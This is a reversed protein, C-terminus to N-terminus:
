TLTNKLMLFSESKLLKEILLTNTSLSAIDITVMSQSDDGKLALGGKFKQFDGKVVGISSEVCFGMKSSSPKIRYLNGDIASKLMTEILTHDVDADEFPACLDDDVAAYPQLPFLLSVILTSIHIIRNNKLM